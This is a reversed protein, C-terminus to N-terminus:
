NGYIMVGESHTLPQTMQSSSIEVVVRADGPQSTTFVLDFTKEAGAKVNTLPAFVIESGQQQFQTPGQASAFQLSAPFKAKLIVGEADGTGRNVVRFRMSVREGTSVPPITDNTRVALSAFGEMKLTNSINASAGTQDTVSVNIPVTGVQTPKLVVELPQTTGAALSALRWTITRTLPDFSGGQAASLFELGNPVVEKVIVQQLPISSENIVENTFTTKQGIFRRTPGTRRLKVQTSIVEVPATVRKSLGGIATITAINEFRGAKATQLALKVERSEGPGLSGIEYELDSGAPHKLGEPIVSHILIGDALGQGKNTVKFVMLASDGLKVLPDVKLDVEIEPSSIVTEAKIESSFTVRALSGIRGPREPIVRILIKRSEGAPLTGIKWRLVSNNILEARPITGTLRCSEPVDDEVIVSQADTSGTNNILIEYIFAEGLAAKEPAQKTVSVIPQQRVIQRNTPTPQPSTEPQAQTTVPAPEPEPAFSESEEGFNFTHKFEPSNNATQAPPTAEMAPTPAKPTEEAPPTDFTLPFGTSEPKEETEVLRFEGAPEAKPAPEAPMEAFFNETAPQPAEPQPTPEPTFQFTEEAKAVPTEETKNVVNTDPVPEFSFPNSQASVAPKETQGLNMEFGPIAQEKAEPQATQEAPFAFPDANASPTAPTSPEETKEADGKLFPLLGPVREAVEKLTSKSASAATNTEPTKVIQEAKQALNNQLEEFSSFTPVSPKAPDAVQEESTPLITQAMENLKNQAAEFTNNLTESAANEADNWNTPIGNQSAFENATQEASALTNEKAAEFTDIAATKLEKMEAQVDSALKEPAEAAQEAMQAFPNNAFTNQQPPETPTTNREFAAFQPAESAPAQLEPQTEVPTLGSPSSDFSAFPNPETATQEATPTSASNEKQESLSAFEFTSDEETEAVVPTVFPDEQTSSQEESAVQQNQATANLDLDEQQVQFAALVGVGIVGAAASLKWLSGHM